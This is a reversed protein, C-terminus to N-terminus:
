RRTSVFRLGLYVQANIYRTHTSAYQLLEIGIADKVLSVLQDHSDHDVPGKAARSKTHANLHGPWERQSPVLPM